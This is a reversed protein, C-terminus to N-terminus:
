PDRDQRVGLILGRAFSVRHIAAVSAGKPIRRRKRRGNVVFTAKPKEEIVCRIHYDGLDVAWAVLPWETVNM